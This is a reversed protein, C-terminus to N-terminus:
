RCASSFIHSLSLYKKVIRPRGIELKILETILLNQQKM